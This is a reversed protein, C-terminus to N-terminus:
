QLPNMKPNIDFAELRLDCMQETVDETQSSSMEAEMAVLPSCLIREELYEIRRDASGFLSAYNKREAFERAKKALKLAEKLGEQRKKLNPNQEASRILYDTQAMHVHFKMKPPLQLFIISLHNLCQEACRLSEEKICVQLILFSKIWATPFIDFTQMDYVM